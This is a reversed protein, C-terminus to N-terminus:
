VMLLQSLDTDNLHPSVFSGHVELIPVDGIGRKRNQLMQQSLTHAATREALLSAVRDKDFGCRTALTLLVDADDIPQHETFYAQFVATRWLSAQTADDACSTVLHAQLTPPQWAPTNLTVGYSEAEDRWTDCAQRLAESAPIAIGLGLVDIGVFSVQAGRAAFATLRKVAVASAPSTFDFYLAAPQAMM